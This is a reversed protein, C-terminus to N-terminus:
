SAGLGLVRLVLATGLIACALAGIVLWFRRPQARKLRLTPQRPIARLVRRARGKPEARVRNPELPAEVRSTAAREVASSPTSVTGLPETTRGTTSADAVAGASPRQLAIPADKASADAPSQSGFRATKAGSRPLVARQARGAGPHRKKTGSEDM